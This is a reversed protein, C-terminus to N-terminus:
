VGVDDYEIEFVWAMDREVKELFTEEMGLHQVPRGMHDEFTFRRLLKDLLVILFM